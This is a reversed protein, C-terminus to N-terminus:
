RRSWNTSPLNGNSNRRLRVSLCRASEEVERLMDKSCLSLRALDLPHCFIAINDLVDRGLDLLRNPLPPLLASGDLRSKNLPSACLNNKSTSSRLLNGSAVVRKIGLLMTLDAYLVAAQLSFLSLPRSM